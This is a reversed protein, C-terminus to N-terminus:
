GAAAPERARERRLLSLTESIHTARDGPHEQFFENLADARGSAVLAHAAALAVTESQDDLARVLLDKSREDALPAVAFILDCRAAESLAGFTQGADVSWDSNVLVTRPEIRDLLTPESAAKRPAIVAYVGIVIGALFLVAILITTM